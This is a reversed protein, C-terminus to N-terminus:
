LGFRLFAGVGGAKDLAPAEDIFELAAGTREAAGVMSERLAVQVVEAGCYPCRSPLGGVGYSLCTQCRWGVATFRATMVLRDVQGHELAVLVPEVGLVALDGGAAENQLRDVTLADHEHELQNLVPLVQALIQHQPVDTDFRMPHVLKGAIVAPLAKELDALVMPEGALILQKPHHEEFVKAIAGAVDAAFHEVNHEVHRQYNGQSWGGAVTKSVHHRPRDVAAELGIQGLAVTFVRARTRSLVAVCYTEYEGVLRALQFLRPAGAVMLRDSPAVALPVARFYDRATCAFIAVGQYASDFEAELYRRIRDVDAEFGALAEGRPGFRRAERVAATRFFTLGPRSNSGDVRMDLYLSVFPEPGPPIAALAKLTDHLNATDM